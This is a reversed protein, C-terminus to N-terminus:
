VRWVDREIRKARRKERERVLFQNKFFDRATLLGCHPDCFYSQRVSVFVILKGLM